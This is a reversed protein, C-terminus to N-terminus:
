SSPNFIYTSNRISNMVDEVQNIKERYNKENYEIYGITMCKGIRFSKKKLDPVKSKFYNHLSLRIEQTKEHTGRIKMAIISDEIQLYLADILYQELNCVKLEEDSLNM